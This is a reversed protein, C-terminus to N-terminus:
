SYTTWEVTVFVLPIFMIGISLHHGVILGVGHKLPFYTAFPSVVDFAPCKSYVNIPFSLYFWGLVTAWKSLFGVGFHHWDSHVMSVFLKVMGIWKWKKVFYDFNTHRVIKEHVFVHKTERLSTGMRNGDFDDWAVLVLAPPLCARVGPGTPIKSSRLTKPVWHYGCLM